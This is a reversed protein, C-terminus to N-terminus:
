HGATGPCTVIHGESRGHACSLDGPCYVQHASSNGHSCLVGPLSAEREKSRIQWVTGGGKGGICAVQGYLASLSQSVGSTDFRIRRAIETTTARGGLDELAKLIIRQRRKIGM